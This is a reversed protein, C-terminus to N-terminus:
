PTFLPYQPDEELETKVQIFRTVTSPTILGIVRGGGTVLLRGSDSAVTQRLTESIYATASIKLVDGAPRMIERM